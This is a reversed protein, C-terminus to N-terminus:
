FQITMIMNNVQTMFIITMTLNIFLSVCVLNNDYSKNQLIQQSYENQDESDLFSPKLFHKYTQRDTQKDLALDIEWVVKGM